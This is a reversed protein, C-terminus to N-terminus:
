LCIAFIETFILLWILIWSNSHSPQRILVGAPLEAYLKDSLPGTIGISASSKAM